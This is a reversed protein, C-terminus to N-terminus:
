TKSSMRVILRSAKPPCQKMIALAAHLGVHDTECRALCSGVPTAGLRIFFERAHAALFESGSALQQSDGATRHQIIWVAAEIPLVQHGNDLVKCTANPLQTRVDDHRHPRFAGNGSM